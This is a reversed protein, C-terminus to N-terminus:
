HSFHHLVIGTAVAVNLSEAHGTGGIKIKHDIKPHLKDDIGHSENGMMIVGPTTNKFNKLPTGELSTGYVPRNQKSLFTNIEEYAPAIRTFSGMTANIVKPNYFDTCNPTCIVHKIGFWDATRIITGLNGPDSVADLLLVWQQPNNYISGSYDSPMHVVALGTNNSTFNSIKLLQNESVISYNQNHILPILTYSSIFNETLYLTHIHLGSHLLEIISKAGQVMFLQHQRRYKKQYLSNIFKVQNKSLM